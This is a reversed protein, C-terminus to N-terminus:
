DLRRHWIGFAPTFSLKGKEGTVRAAGFAAFAGRAHSADVDRPGVALLSRVTALTAPVNWLMWEFFVRGRNRRSAICIPRRSPCVPLLEFAPIALAQAGLETKYESSAPTPNTARLAYLREDAPDLRLTPKRTGLALARRKEPPVSYGKSWTKFLAAELHQPEVLALVDRMSRILEQHGAGNAACLTSETVEDGGTGCALGSLADQQWRTAARSLEGFTAPTFDAPKNIPSLDSGYFRARIALRHAIGSVLTAPDATVGHLEGIFSADFALTPRPLGDESACEDLLRLVGLATMFGLLHSGDVGDLRM